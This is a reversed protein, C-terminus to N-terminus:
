ITYGFGIGKDSNFIINYYLPVSSTIAFVYSLLILYFTFSRIIM